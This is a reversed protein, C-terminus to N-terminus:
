ELSVPVALEAILRPVASELRHEPNEVEAFLVDHTLDLMPTAVGCRRALERAAGVTDYGEHTNPMDVARKELQLIAFAEGFRYNRSLNGASAYIDGFGSPGLLTNRAAGFAEGFSLFELACINLLSSRTARLAERKRKNEEGWLRSNAEHDLYKDLIGMTIAYVNKMAGGFEVGKLDSSIYVRFRGPVRGTFLGAVEDAVTRDPSAICMSSMGLGLSMLQAFTIGYLGCVRVGPCEEKAIASMTFHPAIMGKSTVVLIANHDMFKHLDRMTSPAHQAPVTLFVADADSVVEPLQSFFYPHVLNRELDVGHLYRANTHATKIMHFVDSEITFLRVHYGHQALVSALATGYNGAGIVAIREM